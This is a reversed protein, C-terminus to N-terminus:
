FLPISILAPQSTDTAVQQQQQYQVLSQQLNIANNISTIQEDLEINFAMLQASLFARIYDLQPSTTENSFAASIIDIKEKLSSIIVNIDTTGASLQGCQCPQEPQCDTVPVSWTFTTDSGCHIDETLKVFKKDKELDFM